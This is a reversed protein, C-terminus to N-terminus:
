KQLRQKNKRVTALEASIKNEEQSSVGNGEEEGGEYCSVIQKEAIAM